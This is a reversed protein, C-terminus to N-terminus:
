SAEAIDALLSGPKFRPGGSLDDHFASGRKVPEGDRWTGYKAAFNEPGVYQAPQSKLYREWVELVEEEDHEALLPKLAKGIRAYQPTGGLQTKWIEGARAIATPQKVPASVAAPAGERKASRSRVQSSSKVSSKVVSSMSQVENLVKKSPPETGKPVVNLVKVGSAASGAETGEAEVHQVQKLVKRPRRASGRETGEHQQVQKLTDPIAAQYQNQRWGQGGVGKPSVLIWGAAAADELRDCVCKESLGTQEAITRTSPFCSGGEGDMSLSLTLLIHRITPHPGSSSALAKRWTFLFPPPRRTTTDSKSATM